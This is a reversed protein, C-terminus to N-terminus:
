HQSAKGHSAELLLSPGLNLIHVVSILLLFLMKMMVKYLVRKKWQKNCADCQYTRVKPNHQAYKHSRLGSLTNTAYTCHNCQYKREKSHVILQFM